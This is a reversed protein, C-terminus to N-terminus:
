CDERMREAYATVAAVMCNACNYWWGAADEISFIPPYVEYYYCVLRRRKCKDCRFFWKREGEAIWGAMPAHHPM